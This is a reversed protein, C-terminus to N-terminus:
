ADSCASNEATTAPLSPRYKSKGRVQNAYGKTPQNKTFRIFPSLNEFNHLCRLMVRSM